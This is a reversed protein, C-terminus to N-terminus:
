VMYSNMYVVVDRSAVTTTFSIQIETLGRVDYRNIAIVDTGTDEKVLVVEPTLIAVPVNGDVLARVELTTLDGAAAAGDSLKWTVTIAEQTGLGVVVDTTSAAAVTADFIISRRNESM